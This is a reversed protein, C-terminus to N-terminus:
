PPEAVNAAPSFSALGAGLPHAHAYYGDDLLTDRIERNSLRWCACDFTRPQLGEHGHTEAKRGKEHNGRRDPQQRDRRRREPLARSERGQERRDGGDERQRSARREVRRLDNRDGSQETEGGSECEAAGREDREGEDGRKKGHELRGAGGVHPEDEAGSRDGDDADGDGGERIGGSGTRREAAGREGGNEGGHDGIGARETPGHGIDAGDGHIALTALRQTVLRERLRDAIEDQTLIAVTGNHVGALLGHRQEAQRRAVQHTAAHELANVHGITRGEEAGDGIREGAIRRDGALHAQTTAREGLLVFGRGFRVEGPDFQARVIQRLFTAGAIGVIVGRDDGDHAVHRALTLRFFVNDVGAFM